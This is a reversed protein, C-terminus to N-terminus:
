RPPLLSPRDDPEEAPKVPPAAAGEDPPPLLKKLDANKLNAGLGRFTGELVIRAKTTLSLVERRPLTVQRDERALFDTVQLELHVLEWDPPLAVALHLVNRERDVRAAILKERGAKM